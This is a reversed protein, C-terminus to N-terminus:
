KYPQPGVCRDCSVRLIDTYALTQFHFASREAVSVSAWSSVFILLFPLFTAPSLLAFALLNSSLFFLINKKLYSSHLGPRSTETFFICSMVHYISDLASRATSAAHNGGNIPSIHSIPPSPPPAPPRSHVACVTTTEALTCRESRVTCQPSSSVTWSWLWLWLRTPLSPAYSSVLPFSSTFIHLHSRPIYFPSLTSIYMCSSILSQIAANLFSLYLSIYFTPVYRLLLSVWRAEGPLLAHHVPVLNTAALSLADATSTVYAMLATPSHLLLSHASFSVLGDQCTMAPIYLM